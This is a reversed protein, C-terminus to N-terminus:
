VARPRRRGIAVAILAGLLSGIMDATADGWSSTRGPVFWQHLEDAGGLV